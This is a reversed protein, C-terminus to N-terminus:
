RHMVAIKHVQTSGKIEIMMNYMGSVITRTDVIYNSVGPQVQMESVKRGNMDWLSIRGQATSSPLDVHVQQDAPDPFIQARQPAMDSASVPRGSTDYIFLDDVGAMVDGQGDAYYDFHVSDSCFFKLQVKTTGAPLYNSVRFIRRRWNREGQYTEEVTQWSSGSADKLKVIWPDTKFNFYGDENSYWRYYEIIPQSFGALDIVPSILTSAGQMSGFGGGTSSLGGSVMCHGFGTTHDGAPFMTGTALRSWAGQVADDGPNNSVFGGTATEFDNSDVAKVGVAFQYPLTVYRSPLTSNCTTPFYAIPVNQADHVVFYYEVVSGPAQGPISGTYNINNVAVPTWAGAGNVRYYMTIDHFFTSNDMYLAASVNINTASQQKPLETHTLMMDGGVYIGHRAFAAVIQAYRPTGNLLNGDNDDAMLADILISQFIQGETGMPGDPTDWYVDTFLRMMSDVNGLNVGVDWWSGAIIQGVKHPEITSVSTYDVPYVQPAQDYRRVYVGLGGVGAVMGPGLIPQHTLGMGWVDAHGEHLSSNDMGLGMIDAYFYANIAHGYEHYVVDAMEAMSRCGGATGEFFAIADGIFFANCSGGPYDVITPLPFDLGTFTPFQTKMYNHVRTTHYYANVHQDGYPAAVPFTAVLPATLLPSYLPTTTTPSDIVMSWKGSLAITPTLPLLISANSYNGNANTHFVSSGVYIDLDTLPELTAPTIANTKYVMGKVTLDIGADHVENIRYLLAGTLADVYGTLKIPLGGPIRGNIKFQWAPHLTYGNATPVPFWSWDDTVVASSVVAGDLGEKATVLALAKDVAPSLNGAEGYEKMQIRSLMGDKTFRFSLKSFVVPHGDIRQVYNAYDARPASKVSVLQWEGPRLGLQSLKSRMCEAAIDQITGGPLEAPVGFMDVVSGSLKDTTVAWGPFIRDVKKLMVAKANTNVPLFSYSSFVSQDFSKEKTRANSVFPLSLLVLACMRLSLQYM